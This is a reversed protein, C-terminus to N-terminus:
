ETTRESLGFQTQRTTWPTMAMQRYYEVNLEWPVDGQQKSRSRTVAGRSNTFDGLKVPRFLVEVSSM